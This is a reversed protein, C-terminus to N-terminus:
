RRGEGRRQSLNRQTPNLTRITTWVPDSDKPRKLQPCRCENPCESLKKHFKGLRKGLATKIATSATSYDPEGIDQGVVVKAVKEPEVWTNYLTFKVKPWEIQDTDFRFYRRGCSSSECDPMPIGPELILIIINRINCLYISADPKAKL